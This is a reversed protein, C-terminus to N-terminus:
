GTFLFFINHPLPIFVGIPLGFNCHTLHPRKDGKKWTQKSRKNKITAADQKRVIKVFFIFRAFWRVLTVTLTHETPKRPKKQM